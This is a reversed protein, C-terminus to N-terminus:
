VNHETREIIQNQLSKDLSAFYASYGAVKVMLGKNKEPERQAQRLKDATIINFQMQNGDLDVLYAKILDTFKEARIKDFDGHASQLTSPHFRMNLISGFTYKSHNIKAVSKLTATPGNVDTGAHPSANDALAEGDTRGDPTAGVVEGEPINATLGQLSFGFKGGRIPTYDIGLDVFMDGLIRIYQDVEDNDNGYKAISRTKARLMQGKEGAWNSKCAEMLERLTVVKDRFVLKDIAYLSNAVDGIGHGQIIQDTYDANPGGGDSTPSGMEIRYDLLASSFPMPNLAEDAYSTISTFPVIFGMYYDLHKRYEDVLEDMTKYDELKKAPLLCKGTKSNVGEHLVNELIKLLNFYCDGGVQSASKGPIVAESCGNVGYIRAEELPLGRKILAEIFANDGFFAPLGGGHEMLVKSAHLLLAKSTGEFVRVQPTPNPVKTDALADLFLYTLENTADNGESDQGALTISMFMAGGSKLRTEPWPRVKAMRSTKLYFCDILELIGENTLIGNEIDKKYYPYLYQDMRCLFNAHGSSEIHTLVFLLYTLQLAEHFNQPPKTALNTCMESIKKMDAAIDPNKTEAAKKAALQAYRLFWNSVAEYSIIVADLFLKKRFAIPDGKLDLAALADKAEKIVGPIGGALLREYNPNVHGEGSAKRVSNFLINNLCFSNEDWFELLNGSLFNRHLHIVFDEHNQGQWFPAIERITAKTEESIEFRDYPRTNFTELENLLFNVGFEPFVPAAYIRSGQNGVILEDDEIFITMGALLDRFLFARRMIPMHGVSKKYSETAIKGREGCISAVVSLDREKLRKIRNTM